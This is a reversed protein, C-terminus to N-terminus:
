KIILLNYELNLTNKFIIYNCNLMEEFLSIDTDGNKNMAEMWRLSQFDESPDM